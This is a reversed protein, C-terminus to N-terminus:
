SLKRDPELVLEPVYADFFSLLAWEMAQPRVFVFSFMVSEKESRSASILAFFVMPSGRVRLFNMPLELLFALAKAM